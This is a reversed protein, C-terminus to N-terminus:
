IIFESHRQVAPISSAIRILENRNKSTATARILSSISRAAYDIMGMSAAKMAKEAERKEMKTM